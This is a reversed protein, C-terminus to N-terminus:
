LESKIIENTVGFWENLTCEVKENIVPTILKKIKRHICLVAIGEDLMGLWRYVSVPFLSVPSITYAIAGYILVKDLLGTKEDMMVYYFQLLPKASMRGIKLSHTCLKKYMSNAWYQWDVEKVKKLLFHVDKGMIWYALTMM